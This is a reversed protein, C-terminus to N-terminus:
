AALGKPEDFSRGGDDTLWARFGSGPSTFVMVSVLAPDDWSRVTYGKAEDSPDRRSDIRAHHDDPDFPNIGLGLFALLNSTDNTGNQSRRKRHGVSRPRGALPTGCCVCCNGDRRYVAARTEEDPGTDRAEGLGGRAAGPLGAHWRGCERLLCLEFEAGDAQGRKSRRAAAETAYGRGCPLLPTRPKPRSARSAAGGPKMSKRAKLPKRRRPIPSQRV